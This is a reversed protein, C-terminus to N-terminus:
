PTAKSAGDSESNTQATAARTADDSSVKAGPPLDAAAVETTLGAVLEVPKKLMDLNNRPDKASWGRTIIQVENEQEELHTVLAELFPTLRQMPTSKGSNDPKLAQNLAGRLETATM